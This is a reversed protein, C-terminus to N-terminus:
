HRVYLSLRVPSGVVAVRQYPSDPGLWAVPSPGADGPLILHRVHARDLLERREGPSAVSFRQVEELHKEYDPAIPHSVFARCPTLGYILLGLNPPAMVIDGARCEPELAAVIEMNERQTLWHPNPTLVLGWAIVLTTSCGAAVALTLSAPFRALGVAGLALLPFGIGVLFQLSFHVPQAVIVLLGLGAWVALHVLARREQPSGATRGLACLALLAAPGLAWAFDAIPPFRYATGSYFSFAPNRYFLWHLYAVAPLMGALPLLGKPWRRVPDLLLVCTTRVVALLVFDYPRVLALATAVLTALVLARPSSAAEYCLLAFSLLATGAVFHPNFLLGMSPFLGAYLDLCEPMPRSALTFLLGGLGGGTSLLLLAPLRHSPPLGLRSLWRDFAWLLLASALLGFLRYALILQGGLLRSLGGVVSWELNVLAPRHDDLLVKNRFVFSGDEAQQAYSLYNYFDDVYRFTGLFRTGAPPGLTAALYPSASWAVTFVWAVIVPRLGRM